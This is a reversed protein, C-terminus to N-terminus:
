NQQRRSRGPQVPIAHPQRPGRRDSGAGAAHVAHHRRRKALQRNCAASSTAASIRASTRAAEPQDSHPRQQPDHQHRRRRHVVVPEGGGPRASHRRGAGATADAMAAFSVTQPAESIGLIVGTDQVPFFGKPCSSTCCARDCGAHGAAVLLTATQHAAGMAADQRLVAIVADFAQERPATFGARSTVGATHRLLRACMM